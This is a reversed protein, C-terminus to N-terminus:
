SPPVLRAADRDWRWLTGGAIPTGGLWRDISNIAAHDKRASLVERGADTLELRADLYAQRSEEAMSSRFRCPLGRVLPVTAFALEELSRWFSLDGMFAAEEMTQVAGFLQKPALGERDICLLAQHQTRSLGNASSPLEEFLRRLAAQMRPLPGLDQQLFAALDIPAPKRFARFLTDALALQVGSLPARSAELRRLEEATQRALHDNAQILHVPASRKEGHFFSLIQPLQLQDYLDHEFWLTVQDFGAHDGLMRDRQACDEGITELPQDSAAALFAARISSLAELDHAHGKSTEPVPGEHLVDRWPLIVAECGARRLLDAALDGNTIILASM